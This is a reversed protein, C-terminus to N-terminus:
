KQLKKRSDELIKYCESFLTEYEQEIGPFQRLDNLTKILVNSRIGANGYLMRKGWIHVIDREIQISRESSDLKPFWRDNFPMDKPSSTLYVNPKIAGYSIGLKKALVPLLRQEVFIASHLKNIREEPNKDLEIINIIQNYWTETLERTRNKFHIIACNMPWCSWDYGDVENMWNIPERYPNYPAGVVYNEEHYLNLDYNTDLLNTDKIWLDTDIICFEEHQKALEKAIYIKSFSWYRSAKDKFPMSNILDIDIGDYEKDIGYKAIVELHERNAYLKMPGYNKKWFLISALQVLVDIATYESFSLRLENEFKYYTHYGNM